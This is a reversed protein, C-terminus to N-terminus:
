DVDEGMLCRELDGEEFLCVGLAVIAGEFGVDFLFGGETELEAEEGDQAPGEM